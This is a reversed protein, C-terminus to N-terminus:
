RGFRLLPIVVLFGQLPVKFLYKKGNKKAQSILSYKVSFIDVLTLAALPLEKRLQVVTENLLSNFRRALDNFM